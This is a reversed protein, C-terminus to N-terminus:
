YGQMETLKNETESLKKKLTSSKEAEQIYQEQLEEVTMERLHTRTDNKKTKFEGFFNQWFMLFTLHLIVKPFLLM